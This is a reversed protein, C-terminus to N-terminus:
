IGYEVEYSQLADGLAYTTSRFYEQMKGMAIPNFYHFDPSFSGSDSIPSHYRIPIGFGGDGDISQSDAYLSASEHCQCTCSKQPQPPPPPPPSSSSVPPTPSPETQVAADAYRFSVTSRVPQSVDSSQSQAEPDPKHADGQSSAEEDRDAAIPRWSRRSLPKSPLMSPPRSIMEPGLDGSSEEEKPGAPLRPVDGPDTAKRQLRAIRSRVSSKDVSSSRAHTLSSQALAASPHPITSPRRRLQTQGDPRNSSNNDAPEEGASAFKQSHWTMRRQFSPSSRQEDSRLEGQKDSARFGDDGILIVQLTELDRTSGDAPFLWEHLTKPLGQSYQKYENSRTKMCIYYRGGSGLATVVPAAAEDSDYVDDSIAGLLSDVM